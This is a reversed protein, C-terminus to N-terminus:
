LKINHYSLFKVLSYVYKKNSLSLISSLNYPLPAKYKIFIDHLPLSDFLPCTLLIHEINGDELGCECLSSDKIHLKALHSPSSCHGFRLRSVTSSIVKKLYIKSFWPKLSVNQQFEKYFKGKCQSTEDWHQSWEELLSHRPLLSLDQTYIRNNSDSGQRAALKALEDVMENGQIGSHGPIWSLKVRLNSDSCEKLKSKTLLVLPCMAKSFPNSLLSQLFSLSDTLILSDCIKNALIFNVCELIALGEATFNTTLCPFKFLKFYGSSNQLFAAGVSSNSNPDFPHETSTSKSGDTFFVETNAANQEIYVLLKLNPDRTDKDIGLSLSIEPEFIIDTYNFHFLPFCPFKVIQHDVQLLKRYSTILYPISKNSWFNDSMIINLNELKSILPHNEIQCVKFLYRDSLYQRRLNLPPEACEVQLANTPTSKMAGVIIRLCKYQLLDLKKLATKSALSFTFSGYDLLSRVLANYILRLTTPHGGWWVGTLARMVNLSRECKNIIYNIHPLSNCKSDFFKGLFIAENSIPIEAGDVCIRITPIKNKRTFIVVTSKSVSLSLDHVKFWESLDTLSQELSASAAEISHNSSYVLVDDAYQLICCDSGIVSELERTYVDYLLPSLVSGQPVGKWLYRFVNEFGPVRLSVSREMFLNFIFNTIKLPINLDCLKKKLISLNVNDYAAAVDLFAATVSNNKSFALLLDTSFLSLNDSTSKGRRFGFQTKGLLNNKELFWELRNKILHEVIKSFVSALAIPRYSNPDAPNKSPKLIPIVIHRKWSPPIQGTDIILNIIDLLFSLASYKLHTIFSYPIGDIGPSSDSVKDLILQLEKMTFPLTLSCDGLYPENYEPTFINNPIQDRNPVFDPSLKKFFPNVWDLDFSSRNNNVLSCRYRKINNWVVTLPTEPSMSSCFREWGAKKKKKLLRKTAATINKYNLYNNMDLNDRCLKEAASRKKIAMTCEHDWWPPSPIKNSAVNKRKFTADASLQIISLLSDYSSNLNQKSVKPLSTVKEEILNSYSSWDCNHLNYQLLPSLSPVSRNNANPLSVLIPFHDSGYSSPICKWSLLSSLSPSCLSIDVFSLSQGPRSRRTASGDNLVCLNLDDILDVLHNGFPDNNSAGWLSHHANFDGLIIKPGVLSSIIDKLIPLVSVDKQSIYLSVISIDGIKAAVANIHSNNFVPLSIQSYMYNKKILLAAGGWGDPRDDRLVSYGRIRFPFGPKLWTESIALAFPRFKNILYILDPVKSSVSRSNWQLVQDM